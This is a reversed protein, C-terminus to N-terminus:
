SISNRSYTNDASATNSIGAWTNAHITNELLQNQTADNQLLVGYQGNNNITAREILIGTNSTSGSGYIIVGSGTFQRITLDRLLSGDAQVGYRIGNTAPGTLQGDLIVSGTGINASQARGDLMIGPQTIAIEQTASIVAEGATLASAPIM